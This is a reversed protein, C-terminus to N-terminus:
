AIKVASRANWAATNAAAETAAAVQQAALQNADYNSKILHGTQQQQDKRLQAIEKHLNRIEIVLDQNSLLENSARNSYVRTPTRFDIVEPGQEGVLALGSALGGNAFAQSAGGFGADGGGFGDANAGPAGQGGGYGVGGENLSISSGVKMGLSSAVSLIAGGIFRSLGGVEVELSDLASKTAQPNSTANADNGGNGDLGAAVTAAATADPVKLVAATTKDVSATTLDVATKATAATDTITLIANDAATSVASTIATANTTEYAQRATETVAQATIYQGLLTATTQTATKILGLATVSDDLYQLQKETDSQQADLIANTSDIFDTVSDFDKIYEKSSAFMTRSSNLFSDSVGSLKSLADAQAAKEADTTAPATITAKLNEFATKSQQYIQTPDLTTLSGTTLAAKYDKLAKISSKLSTITSKIATSENNYATALKDKLSKEDELANIYQQGPRLLADLADLEKQRTLVLAEEDKGLLGLIKITQDLKAASLTNAATALQEISSSLDLLDNYTKASAQDTVKFGLVLQKFSERTVTGSVGLRAFEKNLAAQVPALREADTLFNTNFNATKDIFNGLGDAAEILFESIRIGSVGSGVTAKGVSLMALNVKDLGDIVRVATQLMGEGFKNFQELQKFVVGAASDLMGSFTAALAEELEKGKLGRLSVLRTLDINALESMVSESTMGLSSGAEIFADAANKFVKSISKAVKPDLDALATNLSQNTSKFFLFSNTSTTLVDEYAQVFNKSGNVFDAFTGKIALGSDTIQKSSESGFLGGLINFGSDGEKTGFGSGGTLGVVGYVGQAVGSIGDNISKLLDVMRNSYSLGEVSTANLLNLSNAISESKATSDGTVTGTGQSTQREAATMGTMDITSDSSGGVFAAIAAGAVAVGPWGLQSMFKAYIGPIDIGIQKAVNSVTEALQKAQLAASLAASMKEISSLIKYGNEKEKFMKKAAGSIKSLSDIQSLKNKKDLAFIEKQASIWEEDTSSSNRKDELAKYAINYKEQGDAMKVIEGVTGGIATGLDGFAASLNETLTASTKLRDNISAQQLEQEAKIKLIDANLGLIRLIRSVEEAYQKNANDIFKQQEALQSTRGESEPQLKLQTIAFEAPAVKEQRSKSLQDVDKQVNLQLKSLELSSKQRIYDQETIANLEKYVNLMSETSNLREDSAALIEEMQMNTRQQARQEEEYAAKALETTDKQLLKFNSAGNIKDILAQKEREIRKVEQAALDAATKAEGTKDNAALKRYESEVKTFLSLESEKDLLQVASENAQKRYELNQKQKVSEVTTINSISTVLDLKAQEAAINDLNIVLAKKAESVENKSLDIAKKIDVLNGQASLKALGAYGQQLKALTDLRAQDIPISGSRMQAAVSNYTPPKKAELDSKRAALNKEDIAIQDTVAKSPFQGRLDAEVIAKKRDELRALEIEVTLKELTTILSMQTKIGQVQVAISEKEYQARLIIGAKSDGMLGALGSKLTINAEAFDKALRASVINAGLKFQALVAKDFLSKLEGTKAQVNAIIDIQIDKKDGLSKIEEKIKKIGEIAAGSYGTLDQKLLPNDKSIKSIAADYQAIQFNANAQEVQLDKLSQTVNIIGMATAEPFLRLANIDTAVALMANLSNTPDALALSLKQAGDIMGTGLKSYSDTAKLSNTFDDFVKNTQTYSEKLETGKAASVLAAQSLKQLEPILKSVASKGKDGMQSLANELQEASTVNVGLTQSILKQAEVASPGSNLAKFAGIVSESVKENLKSQIDGGWLKQVWNGFGSVVGLKNLEKNSKDVADKTATVLEGFATAKAQISEISLQELLPKKNILDLTKGTTDIAGTLIDMAKSTEEAEKKTNSMWSVLAIIGVIALGIVELWPLFAAVTLGVATVAGRLTASVLIVGQSVLGLKPATRTAADGLATVAGTPVELGGKGAKRINEYANKIGATFGETAQLQSAMNYIHSKAASRQATEAIKTLNSEQSFLRKSSNLRKEITQEAEAAAAVNISRLTLVGAIQDRIAKSETANVADLKIARKEWVKLERDTVTSLDKTMREGYNVRSSSSFKSANAELDIVKTYYGQQLKFRKETSKRIDEDLKGSSLQQNLLAETAKSNALNTAEELSQKYQGLAPIAQKLLIAGIGAMVAALATPSAALISAIPTLVKNLLELGSQAVNQMSALLKAYPNASIEINGFKKEAQDLVANAFGQRKEFDTLASTTKGLTRAYDESAKDVRVFIGLEDLLEPELKTIGRSIRSLADPMAVGLAQSAKAAAEGMRLIATSSMGASSAQATAQMADRLSIAGDSAFSLQKALSGLSRGSAAGLQDLGKILNTTDAARSLAGFAATVAFLNAAFTAYVRVLGGLGQSQKAFDRGEAGTGVAGRAVGYDRSEARTAMVGQRAAAVPGPVRVGQSATAAGKLSTHLQAADKNAQSLGPATVQVAVNVTSGTAM